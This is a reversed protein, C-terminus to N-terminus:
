YEESSKPECLNEEMIQLQLRIRETTLAGYLEANTELEKVENETLLFNQQQQNNIATANNLTKPIPIVPPNTTTAILPRGDEM